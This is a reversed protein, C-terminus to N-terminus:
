KVAPPRRVGALEVGRVLSEMRSARRTKFHRMLPREIMLFSAAGASLTTLISLVILLALPFHPALALVFRFTAPITLVQVLYISYSADGLLLLTRAFRGQNFRAGLDTRIVLLALVAAPIGGAFIRWTQSFDLLCVCTAAFLPAAVKVDFRGKLLWEAVTIGMVFELLLPSSVFRLLPSAPELLQGAIVASSLLWSVFVWPRTVFLLAATTLYFLMEYELTWGVFVIPSAGSPVSIFLLSLLLNASTLWEGAPGSGSAGLVVRGVAFMLFSFLWYLPVLRELRRRLFERATLGGAEVTYYIVAGSVVFFLDVGLVGYFTWQAIDPRLGRSSAAVVAHFIVVAFAACFRLVQLRDLRKTEEREDLEEQVGTRM